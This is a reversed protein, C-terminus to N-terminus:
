KIMRHQQTSKKLKNQNEFYDDIENIIIYVGVGIFLALAIEELDDFLKRVMSDEVLTIQQGPIQLSSLIIPKFNPKFSLSSSKISGSKYDALIKNRSAIEAFSIIAKTM